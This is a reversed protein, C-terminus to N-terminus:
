DAVESELRARDLIVTWRRGAGVIGDDRLQSMVRSVTEPTLGTFAAMDVRTLPLELVLAGKQTVGFKDALSLLAAAVRQKSNDASLRRITQQAQEFRHLVEDLATRALRPYREMVENFLDTSIELVCTVTMAEASDPYTTEGLFGLTGFGEGPGLIDTVVDQGHVSPRLLKATGSAVVFLRNATDGVRYILDGACYGRSQVLPEIDRIDAPTLEAFM